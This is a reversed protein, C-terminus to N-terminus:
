HRLSQQKNSSKRQKISFTQKNSSAQVSVLSPHIVHLVHGLTNTLFPVSTFKQFSLKTLVGDPNVISYTNWSIAKDLWRKLLCELLHLDHFRLRMFYCFFHPRIKPGLAARKRTRQHKVYLQCRLGLSDPIRTYTTPAAPCM